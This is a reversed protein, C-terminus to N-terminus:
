TIPYPIQIIKRTLIIKDHISTDDRNEEKVNRIMEFDKDKAKVIKEATEQQYM